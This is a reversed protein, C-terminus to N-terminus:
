WPERIYILNSPGEFIGFDVRGSPEDDYPGDGEVVDDWDYRLYNFTAAGMGCAVTVDNCGLNGFINVFGTNGAGPASFITGTDGTLLPSNFTTISTTGVGITMTATGQVRTGTNDLRIHDALVIASCTDSTNAVFGTGNFYEVILPPSLTLLESGVETGINFRGFRLQNLSLATGGTDTLATYDDSGDTECTGDGDGDFCVGDTDTLSGATVRVLLDVSATFPAGEFTGPTAPLAALSNIDVTSRDFMFSDRDLATNSITLIGIGDYNDHGSVSATAAALSSFSTGNNINNDDYSRALATPLKWYDTASTGGVHGYNVTTGGAENVATVTIAPETAYYFSQEMYTFSGAVCSNALAPSNNTLTFRDPKFRGFKQHTATVNSGGGLYDGTDLAATLDIIGVEDFALNTTITGNAFDLNSGFFLSGVNTPQVNSSTVDVLESSSTEQGFNPTTANGTLNVGSNPVGDNDGDDASEWVVARLTVPFTNTSHGATAFVSGDADAAYSLNTGTSDDLASNDLWDAARLGASDIDFGFPRVVFMNSTGFITYAPDPASAAVSKRAYLQIQGADNFDFSFTATGTAGFDLDVNDFNGTSEDVTAANDNGPAIDFTAAAANEVQVRTATATSECTTPNNCKFAMEITQTNLIRSECAMTTTNTVVSRLQLTEGLPNIDSEKGAIQTEISEGTGGGDIFRFVADAFEINDDETVGDVDTATGDTVDIDIHPASTATTETLWFEAFTETGDFQYQNPATFTGNGSKLTWGDAAPSTSLTITTSSSPAVTIAHDTADGHATIRVALAECTVGPTGVPYSIAYHDVSAAACATPLCFEESFVLFSAAEATHNRETDRFQDEDVAVGVLAATLRCRRIWGGDGGDHRSINGMVLPNQIYSNVFNVAQGVNGACNENDWGNINDASVISEYLITTSGSAFSGQVNGEIAVYGITENSAVTGGDNVEGRGLALQVSGTGVNRVAPVLWPISTTSPPNNSENVMGQIGALVSPTTPFTTAFNVTDWAEAGPVGAGHQVSTTTHTGAEILRGDPLTHLGPEIAMYHVTMAPHGGDLNQPEVQAVQFGTTTVNQIRISSPDGGENSPLIFVLPAVTYTQKFSISTFTPTVSTDNLTIVDTEMRTPGDCDTVTGDKGAYYAKGTGSVWVDELDETGDTSDTWSTGSDTSSAVGGSHGSAYIENEGSSGNEYGYLADISELATHQLDCSGTGDVALKYIEGSHDNIWLDTGDGWLGRMDGIGNCTTITDWNTSNDPNFSGASRDYTYILGDKDMAYLYTSDGFLNKMDTGASSSGSNDGVDRWTTGDYWYMEGSKGVVYVEVGNPSDYAWVAELDENLNNINISSWSTGNYVIVTGDNGDKKGVAYATSTDLVVVDKLDKTTPSTAQVWVAGDFHVIDGSKGVAIVNSDSSGSIGSLEDIGTLECVAAIVAPALLFLVMGTLTNYMHRLCTKGQQIYFGRMALRHNIYKYM